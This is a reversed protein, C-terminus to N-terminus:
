LVGMDICDELLDNMRIKYAESPTCYLDKIDSMEDYKPVNELEVTISMLLMLSVFLALPLVEKLEYEFDEKPYIEEPNLDLRTLSACLENYYHDLSKRFYEARFEKDSGNFLFYLVDLIPNSRNMMQYDIPIIDYTGDERLKHMLNNPRYDGHALITRNIPKMMYVIKDSSMANEMFQKLRDRHEDKASEQIKMLTMKFAHKMVNVDVNMRINKTIEDFKEPQEISFAISLAHLKALQTLSEKSYNWNITEFRDFMQYGKSILNEMAITEEFYKPNIGYVEPTVLRHEIPVNHKEELQKYTKIVDTYFLIEIKFVDFPTSARVGESLNAVKVFINIDEKGQETITVTYLASSFNAGESSIQKIDLKCNKYDRENTIKHLLEHLLKDTDISMAKALIGLKKSAVQAKSEIYLGFNLTPTLTIDLLELHDSIPVSVGQFTPTLQFPSRKASFLCAQTKTANFKVLNADGWDSVAQLSLNVRDVM